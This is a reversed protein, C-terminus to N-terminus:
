IKIQFMLIILHVVQDRQVREAAEGAAQCRRAARQALIGTVIEDGSGEEDELDTTIIVPVYWIRYAWTRQNIVVVKGSM